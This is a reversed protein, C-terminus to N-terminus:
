GLCGELWAAFMFIGLIITLAYPTKVMWFNSM